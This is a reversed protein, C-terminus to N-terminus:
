LPRNDAPNPMYASHGPFAIAGSIAAYDGAFYNLNFAFVDEFAPLFGISIDDKFCYVFHYGSDQQLLLVTLLYGQM